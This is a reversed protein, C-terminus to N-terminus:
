PARRYAYRYVEGFGFREYLQRAALNDANVQLWATRAGRSVAWKLASALVSSAHGRRRRAAETEMEFIGALDNDRV